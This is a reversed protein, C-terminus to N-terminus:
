KRHQPYAKVIVTKIEYDSQSNLQKNLTPNRSNIYILEKVRLKYDNSARDLIDVLEIPMSHGPNKIIHELPASINKKKEPDKPVHTHEKYRIGFARQTKGIYNAECKNCALRYVVLSQDLKGTIKDKFPFVSAITKPAQFAVNFDVKPINTDILEKL